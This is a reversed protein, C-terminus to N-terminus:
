ERTNVILIRTNPPWHIITSLSNSWFPTPYKLILLENKYSYLYWNSVGINVLQLSSAPLKRLESLM